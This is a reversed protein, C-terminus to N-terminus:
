VLSNVFHVVIPIQLHRLTSDSYFKYSMDVMPIGRFRTSSEPPEEADWFKRLLGDLDHDKLKTSLSQPKSEHSKANTPGLVICGLRTRLACPKDCGESVVGDQLITSWIDAGILLDICGPLGFTPDALQLGSLYEYAATNVPIAPTSSTITNLIYADFSIDLGEDIKSHLNLTTVVKTYASNQGVGEITMVCCRRHLNLRHFMSESLFSVQSGMDCLARCKHLNGQHDVLLVQATALLVVHDGHVLFSQVVNSQQESRPFVQPQSVTPEPKFNSSEMQHSTAAMSTGAGVTPSGCLLTHHKQRCVTFVGASCDRTVHGDRLCNFCLCLRPVTEWRSTVALNRWRHCKALRHNESCHPCSSTNAGNAQASALHARVGQSVSSAAPMNMARREIFSLLDELRPIDNDKLSMGWDNRAAVPLKPLLIPIALADWQTVPLGMVSLARFSNRVCDIIDRLVKQTDRPDTPLALIRQVHTESLLYPNDYRRKLEAWVEEYGGTYFGTVMPVSEPKVYQRLKSLKYTPELDTRQHVMTEFM